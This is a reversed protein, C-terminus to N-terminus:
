GKRSRRPSRGREHCCAIRENSICIYLIHNWQKHPSSHITKYHDGQGVKKVDGERDMSMSPIPVNFTLWLSAGSHSMHCDLDELHWSSKILPFIQPFTLSLPLSSLTQWLWWILIRTQGQTFSLSFLLQISAGLLASLTLPLELSLKALGQPLGQALTVQWLFGLEGLLSGAKSQKSHQIMAQSSQSTM